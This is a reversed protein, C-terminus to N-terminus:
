LKSKLKRAKEHSKSFDNMGLVKDFYFRALNKDGKMDHYKGKLLYLHSSFSSGKDDDIQKSLLEAENLYPESENLRNLYDLSLAAYYLAERKVVPNTYGTVGHNSKEIIKNWSNFSDEWRNLGVYCQYLYREFVPNEPYREHLIKAYKEGEHYNKEFSINLYVYVFKAEVGAYHSNEATESIQTLGKVKDGRPFIMMLPKVVPMREPIHEAFYNYIGLGFLVDKNSPNIEYARKLLNLADRGDGAAKFWSERFSRLLGRFGLAGGKFFLARENNKNKDLIKDAVDITRDIKRLYEDDNSENDRDINIKWWDIMSMFFYGGPDSPNSRIVENFISAASDFHLHYIHDIGKLLKDDQAYTTSFLFQFAITLTLLIKM